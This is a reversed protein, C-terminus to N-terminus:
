QRDRGSARIGAMSATMYVAGPLEFGEEPYPLVAFGLREYLRVAPANDEMVFLGCDDVALRECGVAGLERVLRAGLGRGRHDPAVALRALHCRGARLYYQGFGLLEGSEGVLSFPPMEDRRTDEVFTARTFPFRFHPGGWRECSPRDPFWTMLEDFHQETATVLRM